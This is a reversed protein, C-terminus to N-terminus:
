YSLVLLPHTNLVCKATDVVFPFIPGLEQNRISGSRHEWIQHYSGCEGPRQKARPILLKGQRQGEGQRSGWLTIRGWHTHEPGWSELLVTPSFGHTQPCSSWLRGARAACRNSVITLVTLRPVLFLSFGFSFFFFFAFVCGLFYSTIGTCCLWLTRQASRPFLSHGTSM